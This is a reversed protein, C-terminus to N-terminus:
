GVIERSKEQTLKDIKQNFESIIKDLDDKTKYKDDETVKGAKELSQIEEWVEQRLLRLNVKAEEAKEKLNKVLMERTESTMPPFKVILRRGDNTVSLSLNANRISLEIDGLANKDWPEVGLEGVGIVGIHALQKLPLEQGFYSVKLGELIEPSAGGSRMTRLAEEFKLVLGEM